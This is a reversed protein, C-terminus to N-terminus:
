SFLASPKRSSPAEGDTSGACGAAEEATTRATPLPEGIQLASKGPLQSGFDPDRHLIM